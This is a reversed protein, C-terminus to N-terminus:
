PESILSQGGDVPIVAGTTSEASLLYAVAEAVEQPTPHRGLPTAGAREHCAEPPLVPGPAVANVRVRGALRIADARTAALLERKTRLYPTDGPPDREQAVAVPPDCSTAVASACSRTGGRVNVTTAFFRDFSFLYTLDTVSLPLGSTPRPTRSAGIRRWASMMRPPSSTNSIVLLRYNDYPM